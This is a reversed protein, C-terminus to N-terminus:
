VFNYSDNSNEAQTLNYANRNRYSILAIARAAKMGKEGGEPEDDYFTHDAEISMRQSTNFANVWPSNIANTAVFFAHDFIGPNTITWELAQHGGISCGLILYIKDIGLHKRLIEHAKVQDRVTIQPFSRYYPEGTKSNISLPGTSGYCSGIINACVIFYKAPDFFKGEGVEYLKTYHISYSTIVCHTAGFTEFFAM